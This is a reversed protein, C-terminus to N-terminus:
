QAPAPVGKAILPVEKEGAAPDNSQIVLKGEYTREATPKFTVQVFAQQRSELRLTKGDRLDQPLTLAFEGPGSKTISSIELAKKGRNELILSNFTTAGIYTGSGFETDFQLQTRDLFLQPEESLEVPDEGNGCGALAIFILPLWLTRLRM